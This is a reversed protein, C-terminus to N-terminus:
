KMVLKIRKKGVMKSMKQTIDMTESALSRFQKIQKNLERHKNKFAERLEQMQVKPDKPKPEKEEEDGSLDLDM